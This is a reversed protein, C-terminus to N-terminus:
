SCLTPRPSFVSRPVSNDRSSDSFGTGAAASDRANVPLRLLPRCSSESRSPSNGIRESAENEDENEDEDEDEILFEFELVLVLVLVLVIRYSLCYGNGM